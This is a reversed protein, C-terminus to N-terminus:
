GNQCRLVSPSQCSLPGCAIRSPGGAALGVSVSSRRSCTAPPKVGLSASANWRRGSSMEATARRITSACKGRIAAVPHEPRRLIPCTLWRYQRSERYPMRPRREDRGKTGRAHAVRTRTGSSRRCNRGAGPRGLRYPQFGGVDFPELRAPRVHLRVAERETGQMVLKEIETSEHYQWNSVHHHDTLTQHSTWLSLVLHQRIM